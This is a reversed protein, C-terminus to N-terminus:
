NTDTLNGPFERSIQKLRRLRYYSATCKGFLPPFRSLNINKYQVMYIEYSM